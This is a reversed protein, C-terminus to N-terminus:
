AHRSGSKELHLLRGVGFALGIVAYAWFAISIAMGGFAALVVVSSLGAVVILFPECCTLSIIGCAGNALAL